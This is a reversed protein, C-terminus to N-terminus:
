MPPWARTSTTTTTSTTMLMLREVVHAAYALAKWADGADVDEDRVDNTRAAACAERISALAHPLEGPCARAVAFCFDVADDFDAFVRYACAPAHLKATRADFALDPGCYKDVTTSATWLRGRKTATAPADEDFRARSGSGSGSRVSHLAESLWFVEARARELRWSLWAEDNLHRQVAEDANNPRPRPAPRADSCREFVDEQKEPPAVGGTKPKKLAPTPQLAREVLEWRVVDSSSREAATKVDRLTSSTISHPATTSGSPFAPPARTVSAAAPTRSARSATTAAAASPRGRSRPASASASAAVFEADSFEAVSARSVVSSGSARDFCVNVHAERRSVTLGALSMSCVPCLGADLLDPPEDAAALERAIAADTKGGDACENVHMQAELAGWGTLDRSCLPCRRVPSSAVKTKPPSRTVVNEKEDAVVLPPGIRDVCLRTEGMRLEMGAELAVEVNPALMTEHSPPPPPLSLSSALSSCLRTGNRAAPSPVVVLGSRAASWRIAAHTSSVKKDAVEVRRASADFRAGDTAANAGSWRGVVVGEDGVEVVVEVAVPEVWRGRWVVVLRVVVAKLTRVGDVGSREDCAAKDSRPPATGTAADDVLADERMSREHFM